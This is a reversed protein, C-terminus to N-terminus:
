IQLVIKVCSKNQKTEKENKKIYKRIFSNKTLTIMQFKVKIELCMKIKNWVDDNNCMLLQISAVM